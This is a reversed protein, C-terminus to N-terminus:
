LTEESTFLTGAHSQWAGIIEAAVQKNSKYVERDGWFYYRRDLSPIFFIEFAIAFIRENEHGPYLYCSKCGHTKRFEISTTIGNIQLRGLLETDLIEIKEGPVLQAMVQETQLNVLIKMAAEGGIYLFKFCADSRDALDTASIMRREVKVLPM